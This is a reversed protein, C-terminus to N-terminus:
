SRRAMARLIAVLVKRTADNEILTILTMLGIRRGFSRGSRARQKVQTTPDNNERSAMLYAAAGLALVAGLAIGALPLSLSINQQQNGDDAM